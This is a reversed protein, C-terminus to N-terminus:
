TKKQYFNLTSLIIIYFLSIHIVIERANDRNIVSPRKKGNM